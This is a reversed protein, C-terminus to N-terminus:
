ITTVNEASELTAESVVVRIESPSSRHEIRERRAKIPMQIKYPRCCPLAAIAQKAGEFIARRTEEFPYLVAAERGLGEKTAVTVVEDGLFEHAERCTATDGTVLIVPVGYAGARLATQAIEGSEVGNYWYRAEVKSSQTHNLVGDQTGKMAHYGLLVVGDCTGDLGRNGPRPRGTSYVAGPEMLHPVINDGGGHGDSVIIETAGAERLGRVVAAIDGMLYERAQEYHHSTQDRTQAFRWIGSIGELDTEVFIKLGSESM